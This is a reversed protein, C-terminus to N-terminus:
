KYKEGSIQADGEIEQNIKEKNNDLRYVFEFNINEKSLLNKSIKDLLLRSKVDDQSFVFCIPITQIVIFKLISNFKVTM